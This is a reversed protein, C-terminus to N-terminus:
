WITVPTESIAGVLVTTTVVGVSALLGVVWRQSKLDAIRVHMAGAFLLFSLMGQMLTRNFDIRAFVFETNERVPLGLHGLLILLLSLATALLM